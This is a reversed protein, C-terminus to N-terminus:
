FYNKQKRKRQGRMVNILVSVTISLILFVPILLKSYKEDTSLLETWMKDMLLNTDRPLAGFYEANDVVKQPPYAVPSERVEDDLMAVATQSPLAYGIYEGNAASVAPECLFNIYMEAALRNKSGRPICAADVFINTGERPVAFDLAPNEGIMTFADGAYYPALAAEGGLMKDFIEDMVYAQVLLKQDQLLELCRQLEAPDTTNLSYGLRRQAIAFADRPNSFMLINGMYREDWLIDWSDVEDEYVLDTNHIIGVVGWTYPVSYRNESDYEPYRFNDDIFEYNPIHTFDLPELMSESIMRGIMYDSPIIVDYQAGGGRLKSYLEENTAYTSYYVRIGTAQEFAKNVNLMDDSGDSIYEGWNYVNIAINQGDLARYYEESCVLELGDEEEQARVAPVPLVLLLLVLLLTIKKYV